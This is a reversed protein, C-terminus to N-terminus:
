YLKKKEAHEIRMDIGTVAIHKKFGSSIAGLAGAVAPIVIVEELVSMRAIEDKLVKYKETKGIETKNVWVNGPITADIIKVEKKNNEIVVIDPQRSEIKADCQIKFGWMIKYGKNEIVGSNHKKFTTSKVYDGIFIGVYM